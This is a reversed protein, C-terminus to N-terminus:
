GATWSDYYVAERGLAACWLEAEDLSSCRQLYNVTDEGYIFYNMDANKLIVLKGSNNVTRNSELIEPYIDIDSTSKELYFNRAAAATAFGRGGFLYTDDAANCIHYQVTKSQDPWHRITLCLIYVKYNM